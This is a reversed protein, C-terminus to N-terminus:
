ESAPDPRYARYPLCQIQGAGPTWKLFSYFVTGSVAVATEEVVVAAAVSTLGVVTAFEDVVSPIADTHLAPADAAAAPSILPDAHAATDAAPTPAVLQPLHYQLLSLRLQIPLLLHLLMM